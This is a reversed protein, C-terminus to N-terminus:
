NYLRCIQSRSFYPGAGQGAAGAARQTTGETKILTEPTRQERRNARILESPVSAKTPLVKACPPERNHQLPRQGRPSADLTPHLWTSPLRDRQTKHPGRM